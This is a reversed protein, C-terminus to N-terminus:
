ANSDKGIAKVGTGAISCSGLLLGVVRALHDLQAAIFNTKHVGALDCNSLCFPLALYVATSSMGEIDHEFRVKSRVDRSEAM